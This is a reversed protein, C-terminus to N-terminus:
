IFRCRCLPCINQLVNFEVDETGASDCLEPSRRIAEPRVFSEGDREVMDLWQCNYRHLRETLIKM